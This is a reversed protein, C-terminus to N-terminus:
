GNPFLQGAVDQARPWALSSSQSSRKLGSLVNWSKVTDMSWTHIWAFSVSVVSSGGM